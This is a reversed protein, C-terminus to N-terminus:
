GLFIRGFLNNHLRSQLEDTKNNKEEQVNNNDQTNDEVTPTEEVAAPTEEKQTDKNDEVVPEQVEQVNNNNNDQTNDEVTPTEEVAPTEDVVPEQVEQVNNNNQTNDEVPTEEVAPTEEKQTDKNDEVNSDDNEEVTPTEEKQTDKNEEVPTEEVTPNEEKETDKNDEVPTEKVSPTEEKETDESDEIVSDFEDYDDSDNNIEELDQQEDNDEVTPTEEKQNNKNNDEVNSDDNEEVTPNEEKEIDKNEEVTPNEEKETDENDEEIVSDFEDYNDSDNNIEELDQQKNDADKIGNEINELFKENDKVHLGDNTETLKGDEVLGDTADILNVNDNDKSYDELSKNLEDVLGNIKETDGDYQDGVPNVKIVQIPKGPYKEQLKEIVKIVDDKNTAGEINNIGLTLVIQEIDDSNEPLTNLLAEGFTKTDNLYVYASAGVTAEVQTNDYNDEIVKELGKSNSDGVVLTNDLSGDNNNKQNKTDENEENSQSEQNSDEQDQKNSNSKDEESEKSEQNSSNKDKADESPKDNIVSDFEEDQNEDTNLDKSDENQNNDQITDQIETLDEEVKEYGEEIDKNDVTIVDDFENISESIKTAYDQLKDELEEYRGYSYHFDGPVDKCESLKRTGVGSHAPSCDVITDNGVYMGIHFVSNHRSGDHKDDVWFVLDGPEVDEKSIKKSDNCFKLANTNGADVDVGIDNMMQSVLGSCDLSGTKVNKEGFSYTIGKNQYNAATDEIVEEQSVGEEETTTEVENPMEDLLPGAEEKALKLLEVKERTFRDRAAARVKDNCYMFKYNGVSKYKATEFKEVFTEDDMDDTIDTHDFLECIGKPGFQIATAYLIETRTRSKLMDIGYNDKVKNYSSPVLVKEIYGMQAKEFGRNNSEYAKTWAKSFAETGAKPNGADEFFKYYDSFDGSNKLWKVFDDPTGANTAMQCIGYSVGGTDSKVLGITGGNGNIGVEDVSMMYGVGRYNSLDYVTDAHAEIFSGAGALMITTAGVVLTKQVLQKKKAKKNAENAFMKKVKPDMKKNNM